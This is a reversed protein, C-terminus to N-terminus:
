LVTFPVTTELQACWCSELVSVPLELMRIPRSSHSLQATCHTRNEARQTCIQEQKATHVYNFFKFDSFHADSSSVRCKPIRGMCVGAAAPRVKVSCM